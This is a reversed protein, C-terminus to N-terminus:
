KSEGNHVRFRRGKIKHFLLKDDRTFVFFYVCMGYTLLFVFLGFGEEMLRDDFLMRPFLSASFCFLFVVGTKMWGASLPHMGTKRYLAFARFLNIFLMSVGTAAAAGIIGFAPVLMINLIINLVLVSISNVLETYQNGTMQLMFGNSGFACNVLFFGCLVIFAAEGELFETGFIKLISDAGFFFFVFLVITLIWVWKTVTKFLDALESKRRDHYLGSIYPVFVANLSSLIINMFLAVRACVAYVGVHYSDMFIGVMIRDIEMLFMFSFSILFSPASFHLLEKHNYVAKSIDLLPLIRRYFVWLAVIFVMVTSLCFAFVAIDLNLSYMSFVLLITLLFVKQYLQSIKLYSVVDKEAQCFSAILQVAGMIPLLLSFITVVRGLGSIEFINREFIGSALIHFVMVIISMGFVIGFVSIVLGSLREVRNRYVPHFRLIGNNMGLASLKYSIMFISVGLAYVGYEQAGLGRSLVVTVGLGAAVTIIRLLFAQSGGKAIKKLLSEM